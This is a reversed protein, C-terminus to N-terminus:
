IEVMLFGFSMLQIINQDSRHTSQLPIMMVITFGTPLGGDGVTCLAEFNRHDGDDVEVGCIGM